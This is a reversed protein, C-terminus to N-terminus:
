PFDHAVQDDLSVIVCKGQFHKSDVDVTRAVPIQIYEQLRKATNAEIILNSNRKAGDVCKDIGDIMTFARPLLHDVGLDGVLFSGDEKKVISIAGYSLGKRAGKFSDVETIASEAKLYLSKAIDWLVKPDACCAVFADNRTEEYALGKTSWRHFTMRVEEKFELAAPSNTSGILDLTLVFIGPLEEQLRGDRLVRRKSEPAYPLEGESVKYEPCYENLSKLLEGHCQSVLAVLNRSDAIHRLSDGSIPDTRLRTTIIALGPVSQKAIANNYNLMASHWTINRYWDFQEDTLPLGSREFEVALDTPSLADLQNLVKISYITLWMMQLVLPSLAAFRRDIDPDRTPDLLGKSEFYDWWRSAITGQSVVAHSLEKKLKEFNRLVASKKATETLYIISWYACKIVTEHAPEKSEIAMRLVELLHQFSRQWEIQGAWRHAEYAVANYTHRHTRCTTLLLKANDSMSQMAVGIFHFAEHFQHKREPPWTDEAFPKFNERPILVQRGHKVDERFIGVDKDTLCKLLDENQNLIHGVRGYPGIRTSIPLWQMMDKLAVFLKQVDFRSLPKAGSTNLLDTYALHAQAKLQPLPQDNGDEGSYFARFWSDHESIIRPVAIGTDICVDLAISVDDETANIGVESLLTQISRFTLGIDLRSADSNQNRLEPSDTIRQLTLLIKGVMEYATETPHPRLEPQNRWAALLQKKLAPANQADSQKLSKFITAQSDVPRSHKRLKTWTSRLANANPEGLVTNLDHDDFRAAKCEYGSNTLIEITNRALEEAMVTAAFATLLRFLAEHYFTDSSNTPPSLSAWLPQILRDRFVIEQHQVHNELSLQIIPTFRIEGASPLFTLRVKSYPRCSIGSAVLAGPMGTDLLGTYRHIGYASSAPTSVDELSRLAPLRKLIEALYPIESPAYSPLQLRFSPFDLNYHLGTSLVSQVLSAHHRRIERPWYRHYCHVTLKSHPSPRWPATRDEPEGLFNTRDIAFAACTVEAGRNTTYNHYRSLISGFIISDDFLLLRKGLLEADSLFPIAHQSYLQRGGCIGPGGHVELLRIAGRAIGVILHPDVESLVSSFWARFDECGSSDRLVSGTALSHDIDINGKM